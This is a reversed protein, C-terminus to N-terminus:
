DAEYESADYDPPPGYLATVESLDVEGDEDVDYPVPPGYVDEIPEDDENAPDIATPDTPDPEDEEVPPPGYVTEVEGFWNCGSLMAVSIAAAGVCAGVRKAATKPKKKM